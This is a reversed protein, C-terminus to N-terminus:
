IEVVKKCRALSSLLKQIEAPIQSECNTITHFLLFILFCSSKVPNYITINSLAELFIM